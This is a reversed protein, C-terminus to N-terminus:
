GAIARHESTCLVNSYQVSCIMDKCYRRQRGGLFVYYNMHYMYHPHMSRFKKVVFKLKIGMTSYLKVEAKNICKIMIKRNKRDRM